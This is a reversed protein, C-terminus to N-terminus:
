RKYELVEKQQDSLEARPNNTITRLDHAAFMTGFVGESRLMMALDCTTSFCWSIVTPKFDRIFRMIGDADGEGEKHFDAIDLVNFKVQNFKKMLCNEGVRSAREQPKGEPKHQTGSKLKQRGLKSQPAVGVTKCDERCFKYELCGFDTFGTSGNHEM